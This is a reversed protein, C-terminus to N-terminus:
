IDKFLEPSSMLVALKHPQPSVILKCRDQLVEITQTIAKSAYVACFTASRHAVFLQVDDALLAFSVHVNSQKVHDIAYFMTMATLLDACAGGPVISRNANVVSTAVGAIIIARDIRYITLLYTRIISNFSYERALTQLM